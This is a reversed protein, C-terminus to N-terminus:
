YTIRNIQDLIIEESFLFSAGIRNDETLLYRDRPYKLNMPNEYILVTEKLLTENKGYYLNYKGFSKGSDVFDKKDFDYVVVSDDTESQNSSKKCRIESNTNNMKMILISNGTEDKMSENFKLNISVIYESNQQEKIRISNPYVYSLEIGLITKINNLFAIYYLYLFIVKM